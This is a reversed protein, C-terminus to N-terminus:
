RASWGARLIQLVTAAFHPGDIANILTIDIGLYTIIRRQPMRTQEIQDLDVVLHVAAEEITDANLLGAGWAEILGQIPKPCSAMLCGNKAQLIVRDDAVLVCGMAMLIVALSSKGQGSAGKILVAKGDLAVCTAHFSQDANM